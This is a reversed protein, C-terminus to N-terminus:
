GTEAEAEAEGVEKRAQMVDKESAMGSAAMGARFAPQPPCSGVPTASRKRQKEYEAM